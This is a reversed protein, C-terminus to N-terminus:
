ATKLIFKPIVGSLKKLKFNLIWLEFNYKSVGIGFDLVWFNPELNFGKM